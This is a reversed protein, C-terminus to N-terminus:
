IDLIKKITESTSYGTLFPIAIAKGGYKAVVEYERLTTMDYDGGKTWIEPQLTEILNSPTEESFLVVMDVFQLAALLRARTTQTYIPRHIGKLQQVSTDTNLGVILRSGLRRAKELYDIHGLHLLDFCGNTFVITEGLFRWLNTQAIAKEQSVIKSETHYHSM